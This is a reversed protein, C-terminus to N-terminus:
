RMISVLVYDVINEQSMKGTKIGIEAERIIKLNNILEPIRYYNLKGQLNNIQWTNLGTNKGKGGQMMLVNRFSNYLLTLAGLENFNIAKLENLYEFSLKVNKMLVADIFSFINDKPAVYLTDIFTQVNGGNDIFAQMKDLEIILRSYTVCIEVLRNKQTEAMPIKIYRKLEGNTLNNFLVTNKDFYKLIKTYKGFSNYILILINSHLENRINKWSRDDKLFDEDDSIVFVQKGTLLNRSSLLPYVSEVSDARVLEGDSIKVIQKIFIDTMMWDDGQFIYFNDLEKKILKQRLDERNM